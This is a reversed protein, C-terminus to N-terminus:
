PPLPLRIAPQVAAFLRVEDCRTRFRFHFFTLSFPHPRFPLAVHVGLVLGFVMQAVLQAALLAVPEKEPSVRAFLESFGSVFECFSM